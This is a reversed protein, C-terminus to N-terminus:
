HCGIHPGCDASQDFPPAVRTVIKAKPNADSMPERRKSRDTRLTAPIVSGNTRNGIDRRTKTIFGYRALDEDARSNAL